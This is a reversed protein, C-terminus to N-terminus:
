FPIDSDMRESDDELHLNRVVVVGDRSVTMLKKDDSSFTASAVSQNSRDHEYGELM